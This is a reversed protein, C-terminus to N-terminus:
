RRDSPWGGVPTENALRPNGGATVRRSGSRGYNGYIARPGAHRGATRQPGGDHDSDGYPGSKTGFDADRNPHADANSRRRGVLSGAVWHNLFFYFALFLVLLVGAALQANMM